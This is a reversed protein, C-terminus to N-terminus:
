SFAELLEHVAEALSAPIKSEGDAQLFFTIPCSTSEGGLMVIESWSSSTTWSKTYRPEVM